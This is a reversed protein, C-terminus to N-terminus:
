YIFPVMKYKTTQRYSEYADGFKEVLFKEEHNTRRAMFVVCLTLPLVGWYSGVALPYCPFLLGGCAYTPHRVVAYLGNTILEQKEQQYVSSSAYVNQRFVTAVSLCSIVIAAVGAYRLWSSLAVRRGAADFGCVFMGVFFWCAFAKVFTGEEPSDTSRPVRKKARERVIRPKDILLLLLIACGISHSVLTLILSPWLPPLKVAPLTRALAGLWIPPLCFIWPVLAYGILNKAIDKGSLPADFDDSIGSKKSSASLLLTEETSTPSVM